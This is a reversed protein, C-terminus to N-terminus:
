EPRKVPQLDAVRSWHETQRRSRITAIFYGFISKFM